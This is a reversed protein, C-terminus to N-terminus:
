GPQVKLEGIQSHAGDAGHMEIEYGGELTAPFDFGVTGGATVAKEDDYGHVHIEGDGDSIVRFRVREGSTVEVEQVGGVPEGGEIRIVSVPEPKPKTVGTSGNGSGGNKPGEAPQGRIAAEDSDDDGQLVVFLAVAAAVALLGAVIKARDSM